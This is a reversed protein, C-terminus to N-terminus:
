VYLWPLLFKFLYNGHMQITIDMTSFDKTLLCSWEWHAYLMCSWLSIYCTNWKFNHPKFFTTDFVGQGFYYNTFTIHMCALHSWPTGSPCHVDTQHRMFIALIFGIWVILHLCQILYWAIHHNSRINFPKSQTCIYPPIVHLNMMKCYIYFTVLHASYSIITNQCWRPCIFKILLQQFYVWSVVNSSVIHSWHWLNLYLLIKLKM